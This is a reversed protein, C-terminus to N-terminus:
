DEEIARLDEGLERLAAPDGDLATTIWWKVDRGDFMTMSWDGRMINGVRRLLAVREDLPVAGPDPDGMDWLVIWGESDSPPAYGSSIEVVGSTLWSGGARVKTIVGDAVETVTAPCPLCGETYIIVRDGTNPKSATM